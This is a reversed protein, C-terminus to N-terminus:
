PLEGAVLDCIEQLFAADLGTRAVADAREQGPVSPPTGGGPDDGARSTMTAEGDRGERAARRATVDGSASAGDGTAKAHPTVRRRQVSGAYQNYAGRTRM